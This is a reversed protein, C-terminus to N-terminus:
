LTRRRSVTWVSGDMLRVSYKESCEIYYRNIAHSRHIRPFIGEPLLSLVYGLTRSYLLSTGNRFHFRTYNGESQCAVISRYPIWRKGEPFPLRLAEAPLSHLITLAEPQSYNPLTSYSKM